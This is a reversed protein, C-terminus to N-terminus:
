RKKMSGSKVATHRCNIHPQWDRFQWGAKNFKVSEEKIITKLRELPVGNGEGEKSVREKILKCVGSTRNDNPGVWEYLWNNKPDSQRFALERGSLVFSHSETRAIRELKYREGNVINRMAKVINDVTPETSSLVDKVAQSLKDSLTKQFDKFAGWVPSRNIMSIYKEDPPPVYAKTVASTHRYGYDLAYRLNTEVARKLGEEMAKSTEQIWETRDQTSFRPEAAEWVAEIAKELAKTVDYAVNLTGGAKEVKGFYEEGGMLEYCIQKAEDYEMGENFWLENNICAELNTPPAKYVTEQIIRSSKTPTGGESPAGAGGTPEPSSGGQGQVNRAENPPSPEFQGAAPVATPEPIPARSYEFDGYEDLTVEFGMSKMAQANQIKMQDRQLARMEDQEEPPLLKPQHGTVGLIRCIAPFLIKNYPYQGREAARNTVLVQMGENNLGGSSSTDALFVNSVGFFASIRERLEDRTNSYEMEKMDPMLPVFELGAKGESTAPEVTIIPIYQPDTRVKEMEAAWVAYFSDPNMTSAVGIGKPMRGKEWLARQWRTMYVLAAMENWLIVAPPAQGYLLSPQYKSVHYVEGEVFAQGIDGGGLTATRSKEAIFHVDFLPLNCKPCMKTKDKELVERHQLCTFLMGGRKGTNDAVIRMVRPDGSIIEVIERKEISGDNNQHYRQRVIMYGDDVTNMDDEIEGFVATIDQHNENCSRLLADMFNTEKQPPPEMDGGCEECVSKDPDLNDYEKGCLLCKASFIESWEWGRRFIQNRLEKKCTAAVSCDRMIAFLEDVSQPYRPIQIKSDEDARYVDALPRGAAERGAKTFMEYGAMGKRAKTLSGSTIFDAFRERLTAM